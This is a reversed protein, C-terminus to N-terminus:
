RKAAGSSAPRAAYKRYLREHRNDELAVARGDIWEALVKTRIELPDGDTLILSASKGPEISGLDKGVGLINAADLTISRLADDKRLGFAAAMAAHYPLNRTNMAGFGGGGSSICFPVGAAQLLAATAYARDYPDDERAPESLVGDVIVPIKKEHLLDAARAVDGSGLLIMRVGQSETFAVASRIQKIEDAQVIV